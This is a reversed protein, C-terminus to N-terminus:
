CARATRASAFPRSSIRTRSRRCSTPGPPPIPWACAAWKVRSPSVAAMRASSSILHGTAATFTRRQRARAGTSFRRPARRPWRSWRAIRASPWRSSVTTGCRCPRALRQAPRQMGSACCKIAVPPPSSKEMRASPLPRCKASTGCRPASRSERRRTGSICLATKKFAPISALHALTRTDWVCVVGKDEGTALLSGDPSVAVKCLGSAHKGEDTNRLWKGGGTDYIAAKRSGHSVMAVLKGDPFWVADRVDGTSLPPLLPQSTRADYIALGHARHGILLRDGNPSFRVARMPMTAASQPRSEPVVIRPGAPISFNRDSLASLLWSPAFPNQPDQRLVAALWALGENGRGADFAERAKQVKVRLLNANALALSDEARQEGAEARVKEHEARNRERTINVVFWVALATILAWAAAATTFVGKHRRVLLAAQKFLSANEASTAFGAQYAAIDAQLEPVSGYRDEPRLAMAKRVVAALSGPIIRTACAGRTNDGAGGGSLGGGGSGPPAGPVARPARASGLPEVEGRAVKEVIAMADAGTVSPRLALIHYLIAGLAYIDARADLTEVEGRAQEPAM